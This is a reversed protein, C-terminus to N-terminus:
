SEIPTESASVHGYFTWDGYGNVVKSLETEAGSSLSPRITFQHAYRPYYSPRRFRAAILMPMRLDISQNLQRLM